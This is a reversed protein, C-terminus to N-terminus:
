GHVAESGEATEGEHGPSTPSCHEVCADFGGGEEHKPCHHALGGDWLGPRRTFADHCAELYSELRPHGYRRSKRSRPWVLGHGSRVLELGLDMGDAGSTHVFALLRYQRLKVFSGDARQEVELEVTSGPGVVGELWLTSARGLAREHETDHGSRDVDRELKDSAHSEPADVGRLRVLTPSTEGELVIALTDGDVVRDVVGRLASPTISFDKSARRVAGWSSGTLKADLEDLSTEAGLGLEEAVRRREEASLAALVVSTSLSRKRSLAKAIGAARLRRDTVPVSWHEALELLRDLSLMSLIREKDNAM